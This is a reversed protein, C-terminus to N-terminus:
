CTTTPLEYSTPLDYDNLDYFSALPKYNTIRKQCQPDYDYVLPPGCEVLWYKRQPPGLQMALSFLTNLSVMPM